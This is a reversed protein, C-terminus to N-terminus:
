IHFNNSYIRLEWWLSIKEIEKIKWDIHIFPHQRFFFHSLTATALELNWWEWWESCVPRFTEEAGWLRSQWGLLLASFNISRQSHQEALLHCFNTYLYELERPPFVRLYIHKLSEWLEETSRPELWLFLRIIGIKYINWILKLSM